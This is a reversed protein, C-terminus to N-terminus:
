QALRTAHSAVVQWRGDRRVFVDTFRLVISISNSGATIATTKGTVIASDGFLRISLDDYRLDKFAPREDRCIRLAETKPIVAGTIHILSWEPALLAGWADCDGAKYTEALRQEIDQLERLTASDAQHLLLMVLAIIM